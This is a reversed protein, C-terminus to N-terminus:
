FIEFFDFVQTICAYDSILWEPRNNSCIGVFERPRLLKKLGFGFNKFHDGVERYTMWNFDSSLQRKEAGEVPDIVKEWKRQGMCWREAYADV